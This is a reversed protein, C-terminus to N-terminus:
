NSNNDQDNNINKERLFVKKKKKKLPNEKQSLKEFDPLQNKECIGLNKLFDISIDYLYSRSDSENDKREILGRMALKRLVFSCNVGRIYEIESRTIPGRYAIVALTELAAPSLSDSLEKGLFAAVEKGFQATSVLQVNENTLVLNIGRGENNFDFEMERLIKELQEKKIKLFSAMKKIEVPDGVSFLIAEILGKLKSVTQNGESKVSSKTQIIEEKM